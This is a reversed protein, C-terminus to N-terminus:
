GGRRLLSHVYASLEEQFPKCSRHAARAEAMRKRLRKVIPDDELTLPKPEGTLLAHLKPFRTLM